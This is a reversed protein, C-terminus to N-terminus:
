WPGKSIRRYGEPTTFTYNSDKTRAYVQVRYIDKRQPMTSLDGVRLGHLAGIRMGTSAMLLIVVKSREDCRDLIRRIEDHTYHRDEKKVEDGPISRNIKKTNLRIDNWDFFHLVSAVENHITSHKHHKESSLYHIWQIIMSKVAKPEKEAKMLLSDFHEIFCKFHYAYKKRTQPSAIGDTVSYIVRTNINDVTDKNKNKDKDRDNDGDAGM